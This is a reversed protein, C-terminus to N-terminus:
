RLERWFFLATEGQAAGAPDYLSTDLGCLRFGLRRYFQIAPYNVNQTELWLCRAGLARGCADLHEVLAAGVGGRRHGADVYLHAVVLRRNWREHRAASFGVLAGEREAVTAYELAKPDPEHSTFSGYGKRLPPDVAEPVLTFRLEDCPVRYIRDSTFSTDLADLLPLDDPWRAPRLTLM